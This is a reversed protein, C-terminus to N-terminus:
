FLELPMFSAGFSRELYYHMLQGGPSWLFADFRHQGTPLELYVNLVGNATLIQALHRSEISFVAKDLSGHM